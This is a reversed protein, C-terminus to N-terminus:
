VAVCQRIVAAADRLAQRKPTSWKHARRVLLWGKFWEKWGMALDGFRPLSLM